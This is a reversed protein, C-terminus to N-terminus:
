RDNEKAPRLVDRLYGRGCCYACAVVVERGNEREVKGGTGDCRKCRGDDTSPPSWISGPIYIM